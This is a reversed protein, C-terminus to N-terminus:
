DLLVILKNKVMTIFENLVANSIVYEDNFYIKDTSRTFAVYLLHIEERSMEFIDGRLNYAYAKAIQDKISVFDDLLCVQKYEQGKVKHATSVVVDAVERTSAQKAKMGDYIDPLMSDYKEVIQIRPMLNKDQAQEAYDKVNNFSEFNKIMKNKVATINRIKLNYIDLLLEFEYTAFGGNYYIAYEEYKGAIFDFLAVNTRAIVLNDNNRSCPDSCGLFPKPAELLSLYKNAVSAVDKPCRFSQTLFYEVAGFKKVKELANVAGNWAYIQQYPDGVLIYRIDERAICDVMCDSLDQAEDIMIWHYGLKPKHLQYLKLYGNHPMLYEGAIMKSWIGTVANSIQQIKINGYNLSTKVNLPLSSIFAQVDPYDSRLFGNLCEFVVATSDYDTKLGETRLFNQINWPRINGINGAYKYGINKFALAHFTSVTVNPCIVFSQKAELEMAKNFVLYLIRENKRALAFQRLTSTKGTGALATVAIRKQDSEIIAQQEETYINKKDVKM